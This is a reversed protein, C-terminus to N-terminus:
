AEVWRDAKFYPQEMIWFIEEPTIERPRIKDLWYIMEIAWSPAKAITVDGGPLWNGNGLIMPNEAGEDKLFLCLVCDFPGWDRSLVEQKPKEKLWATFKELTPFEM